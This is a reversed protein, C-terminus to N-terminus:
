ANPANLKDILRQLDIVVDDMYYLDQEHFHDTYEYRHPLYSKYRRMWRKLDKNSLANLEPLIHVRSGGARIAVEVEERVESDEEELEIGLFFLFGPAEPPLTNGCFEEILWAVV